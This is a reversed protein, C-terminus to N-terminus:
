SMIIQKKPVSIGTTSERYANEVDERPIAIIAISAVAINVSSNLETTFMAPMLQMGQQSMGTALPSDVVYHPYSSLMHRDVLKGIIEEGSNMKFSYVTGIEVDM